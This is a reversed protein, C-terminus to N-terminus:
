GTWWRSRDVSSSLLHVNCRQTEKLDLSQLDPLTGYDAKWFLLRELLSFALLEGRRIGTKALLTIIAKARIDLTSNVLESMEEVSILKRIGPSNHKKYRKLYRKKVITVPNKDIERKFELYEYFSSLAYFYNRVRKGSVGREERLYRMFSLLEEREVELVPQGDLFENFVRLISLYNEITEDALGRLNCDELFEKIFPKNHDEEAVAVQRM